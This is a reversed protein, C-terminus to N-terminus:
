LRHGAHPPHAARRGRVRRFIWVAHRLRKDFSPCHEGVGLPLLPLLRSALARAAGGARAAGVSHRLVMYAFFMGGVWVVASLVHLAVLLAM